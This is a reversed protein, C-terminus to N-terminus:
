PYVPSFLSLSVKSCSIPKEHNSNATIIILHVVVNIKNGYHRDGWCLIPLTLFSHPNVFRLPFHGVREGGLKSTIGFFWCSALFVLALPWKLYHIEMYSIGETSHTGPASKPLPHALTATAGGEKTSLWYFGIDETHIMIEPVIHM